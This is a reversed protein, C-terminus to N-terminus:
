ITIKWPVGKYLDIFRKNAWIYIITINDILDVQSSKVLSYVYKLFLMKLLMSVTFCLEASPANQIKFLFGASQTLSLMEEHGVNM